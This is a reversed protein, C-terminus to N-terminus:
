CSLSAFIKCLETQGYCFLTTDYRCCQGSALELKGNARSKHVPALSVGHLRIGPGRARIHVSFHRSCNPQRGSLLFLAVFKLNDATFGYFYPM